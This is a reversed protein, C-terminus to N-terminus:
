HQKYQMIANNDHSPIDLDYLRIQVELQMVSFSDESKEQSKLHM